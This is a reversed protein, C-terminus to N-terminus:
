LYFECDFTHKVEGKFYIEENNFEFELDDLNKPIVKMKKNIDFNLIGDYFCAAMGTGCALTEDEVGREYTRVYIANNDIKAFNVNANFEFRLKKALKVDFEDLNNTFHVLHPVGTDYFNYIKGDIILNKQLIKLKTLKIKVNAINKKFECIKAEIIGAGTQFLVEEKALDNEYAFMAAARSGNGCMKAESGDSNYFEWSFDIKSANQTFSPKIIILGDAGVGNHRDCIEKVLAQYNHKEDLIIAFDNGSANYKSIKM